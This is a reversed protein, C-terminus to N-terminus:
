KELEALQKKMLAIQEKKLEELRALNAKAEDIQQQISLPESPVYQPTQVVTADKVPSVYEPEVPQIIQKTRPDIVNGAPDIRVSTRKINPSIVVNM